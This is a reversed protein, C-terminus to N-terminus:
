NGNFDTDHAIVNVYHCVSEMHLCSFLVLINYNVFVCPSMISIRNPGAQPLSRLLM